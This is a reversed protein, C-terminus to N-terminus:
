PQSSFKFQALLQRFQMENIISIGLTVAREYKSGPKEGLLLYSTNKSVSSSVTGGASEILNKADGRSLTPMSGTLAFTKGALSPRQLSNPIDKNILLDDSIASFSFGIEKLESVLRQNSSDSFWQRLSNM